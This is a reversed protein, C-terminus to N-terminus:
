LKSVTWTTSDETKSIKYGIKNLEKNLVEFNPDNELFKPNFISNFPKNLDINKTDSLMNEIYEKAFELAKTKNM